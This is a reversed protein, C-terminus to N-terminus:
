DREKEEKKHVSVEDGDLLFAFFFSSPWCGAIKVERKTLLAYSYIKHLGM